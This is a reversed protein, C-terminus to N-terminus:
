TENDFHEDKLVYEIKAITIRSANQYGNLINSITQPTLDCMQAFEGQTIRRKACFETIRDILKPEMM